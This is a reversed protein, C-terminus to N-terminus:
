GIRVPEEPYRYTTDDRPALLMVLTLPGVRGVLMTFMFIITGALSLQPSAGASMGNTGFASVTEFMLPLFEIHPDTYTLIPVVIGLFTVGLMAVLLARAVLAQGIERRYIETRPHRLASSRAAVILVAITNVKIGGAVSATSGGIFMLGGFVLHTFDSTAGWDLASFGATRGSVGHFVASGIRGLGSYHSLVGNWEAFLFVSTAFAYLFFTLILVLKTDLTFRTFNFLFLGRWRRPDLNPSWNRRMDIIIPWGLAGAFILPTIIGLLYPNAELTAANGGQPANPLISFGANNLASVSLFLSQWVTEALSFDAVDRMKFFLAVAGIIYGIFFAIVINRAIRTLNRTYGAGVTDQYVDEEVATARRGMVTILVTAATIFELGGLLMLMFIVIQGFLSWFVPTDVMVLGTVTSASIATFFAAQLPARDGDAAAFPTALLVGGIVNLLLFILLLILPTSSWRRPPSRHRRIPVRVPAARHRRWSIASEETAAAVAALSPESPYISGDPPVNVPVVPCCLRGTAKFFPSLYDTASTDAVM